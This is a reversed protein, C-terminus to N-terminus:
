KIEVKVEAEIQSVLNLLHNKFYTEDRFGEDALEWCGVAYYDIPIQNEMHMKAYYTKSFNGDEPAIGYGRYSDKPLILALGLYWIKEYTQKDHTYLIVNNETEIVNLQRDTNIKVLGILLTDDGHLGSVSVENHYGYMGPWIDTKEEVNYIRDGAHWKNYKFIMISHVPGETFIRFISQEINSLTDNLTIGMRAISDDILLGTGGIGVSNNVALIDRGWDHMVHYNDQVAGEANIGVSDPSMWSVKKGFLDKSNRGDFYHRFGVKDNEWSPGDTQYPQYGLAGYVEDRNVTDYLRPTVPLTDSERKGFRINTRNIYNIQDDLWTLNLVIKNGAQIDVVFFLNDWSGDGDTDDLQSPITDGKVTLLLPYKVEDALITLDSKKVSVAKDKLNVESNNKLYITIGEHKSTCAIFLLCVILGASINKKM